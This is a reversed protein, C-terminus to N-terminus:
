TLRLAPTPPPSFPLSNPVLEAIEECTLGDYFLAAVTRQQPPLGRLLRLVQRQEEGFLELDPCCARGPASDLRAEHRDNRHTQKWLCRVAIGRVWAAPERISEWQQWVLCMAEQAADEADARGAGMGM